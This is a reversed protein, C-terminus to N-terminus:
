ALVRHWSPHLLEGTNGPRWGVRAPGWLALTGAPSRPFGPKPTRAGTASCISNAWLARNQVRAPKSPALVGSWSAEWPQCEDYVSGAASGLAREAARSNGGRSVRSHIWVMREQVPGEPGLVRIGHIKILIYILLTHSLAPSDLRSYTVRKLLKQSSAVKYIGSVAGNSESQTKYRQCFREQWSLVQGAGGPSPLSGKRKWIQSIQNPQIETWETCFSASFM